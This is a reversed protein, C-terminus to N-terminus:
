YYEGVVQYGGAIPLYHVGGVVYHLQGGIWTRQCGRPLRSVVVGRALYNRSERPYRRSAVPYGRAPAAFGPRSVYAARVGRVGSSIRRHLRRNRYAVGRRSWLHQARARHRAHAPRYRRAQGRYYRAQARHYRHAQRQYYRAQARNRRSHAPRARWRRHRKRDHIQKSSCTHCGRGATVRARREGRTRAKRDGRADASGTQLMVLAAVLLFSAAASRFIAIM